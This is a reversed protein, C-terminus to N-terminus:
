LYEQIGKVSRLQAYFMKEPGELYPSDNEFVRKLTIQQFHVRLIHYEFVGAQVNVVTAIYRLTAHDKRKSQPLVNKRQTTKSAKEPDNHHM